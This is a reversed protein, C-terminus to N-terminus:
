TLPDFLISCAHQLLNSPMSTYLIGGKITYPYGESSIFEAFAQINRTIILEAGDHVYYHVNTGAGCGVPMRLQDDTNNNINWSGTNGGTSQTIVATDGTLDLGVFAGIDDLKGFANESTTANDGQVLAESCQAVPVVGAAEFHAGPFTQIKPQNTINKLHGM